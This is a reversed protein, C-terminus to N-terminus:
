YAPMALMLLMAALLLGAVALMGLAVAIANEESLAARYRNM